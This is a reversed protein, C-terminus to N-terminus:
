FLISKTKYMCKWHLQPQVQHHIRRVMLLVNIRKAQARNFEDEIDQKHRVEVLGRFSSIPCSDTHMSAFLLRSDSTTKSIDRDTFGNYKFITIKADVINAMSEQNQNNNNKHKFGMIRGIYYPEGPPESIMYIYQGKSLSFQAVNNKRRSNLNTNNTPFQNPCFLTQSDIDIYADSLDLKFSFYDELRPFIAM